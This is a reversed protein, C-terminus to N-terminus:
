SKKRETILYAKMKVDASMCTYLETIEWMKEDPLKHITSQLTMINDSQSSSFVYLHPQPQAVTLAHGAATVNVLMQLIAQECVLPKEKSFGLSGVFLSLIVLLSRM